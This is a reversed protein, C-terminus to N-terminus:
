NGIHYNKINALNEWFKITKLIPIIDYIEKKAKFQGKRIGRQYVFLKNESIEEEDYVALAGLTFVSMTLADGLDKLFGLSAMPSEIMKVQEKYGFLPNFTNVEVLLRHTQYTLYNFAKKANESSEQNMEPTYVVFEQREEEDDNGRLMNLTFMLIGAFALETLTTRAAYYQSERFRLQQAQKEPDIAGEKLKASNIFEGKLDLLKQKTEGLNKFYWLIFKVFSRYRGEMWGLNEDYYKRTFRTKFGPYVWKHFQAILRGLATREIVMRDDKAYNGHIQKNISRIKMRMDIIMRKYVDQDLVGNKKVEYVRKKDFGKKLYLQRTNPDFKFADYVNMDEGTKTNIAKADMLVAMGIKTQVNFEAADNLFYMGKYFKQVLKNDSARSVQRLDQASDMMM